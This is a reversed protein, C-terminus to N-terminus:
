YIPKKYLNVVNQLISFKHKSWLAVEFAKCKFGFLLHKLIMEKWLNIRKGDKKLFKTLLRTEPVYRLLNEGAVINYDLIQQLHSIEYCINFSELALSQLNLM